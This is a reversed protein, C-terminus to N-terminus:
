NQQKLSATYKDM